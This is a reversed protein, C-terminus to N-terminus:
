EHIQIFKTKLSGFGRFILLNCPCNQFIWFLTEVGSKISQDFIRSRIIRIQPQIFRSIRFLIFHLGLWGCSNDSLWSGGSWHLSGWNRGGVDLTSWGRGGIDLSSRGVHVSVLSDLNSFGSLVSESSVVGLSSKILEGSSLKRSHDEFLIIVVSRAVHVGSFSGLHDGIEIGRQVFVVWGVWLVAVVEHNRIISVRVIVHTQVVEFVDEDLVERSMVVATESEEEVLGSEVVLHGWFIDVSRWGDM